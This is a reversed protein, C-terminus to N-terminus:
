GVQGPTSVFESPPTDFSTPPSIPTDDSLTEDWMPFPEPRAGGPTWYIRQMVRGTRWANFAKIMIAAHNRTDVQQRRSKAQVVSKDLTRKLIHRPDEESLGAGSIVSDFFVQADEPATQSWLFHLGAIATVSYGLKKPRIKVAYAVSDIISPYRELMDLAQKTTLTTRAHRVDKEQEIRYLFNLTAALDRANKYGYRDLQQELTRKRGSDMSDQTHPALGEVLMQRITVGSRVVAHLRHQGDLLNGEPDKAIAANGLNWEGREMAGAYQQVVAQSLKRNNTNRALWQEALAPTVEIITVQETPRDTDDRTLLGM